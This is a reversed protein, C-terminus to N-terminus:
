SALSMSPAMISSPPPSIGELLDVESVQTLLSNKPKMLFILPTNMNFQIEDTVLSVGECKSNKHDKNARDKEESPRM